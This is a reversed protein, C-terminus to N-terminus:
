IYLLISYWTRRCYSIYIHMESNSGHVYHNRRQPNPSSVYVLSWVFYCPRTSSCCCDACCTYKHLAYICPQPTWMTTQRRFISSTMGDSLVRVVQKPLVPPTNVYSAPTLSGLKQPLCLTCKNESCMYWYSLGPISQVYMCFPFWIIVCSYLFIHAHEQPHLELAM